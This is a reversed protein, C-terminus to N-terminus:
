KVQFSTTRIKEGNLYISIRYKGSILDKSKNYTLTVKENNNKFDISTSVTYFHEIGASTFFTNGSASADYLIGGDPKEIRMVAQITKHKALNNKRINFTSNIISINKGKYPEKTLTKGNNNKLVIKLKETTLKSGKELIEKNVILQDNSAAKLSDNSFKLNSNIDNLFQTTKTLSDIKNNFLVQKQNFNSIKSEIKKRLSLLESRNLKSREKWSEKEKVLETILNRIEENEEDLDQYKLNLIELKMIEQDLVTSISDKESKLSNIYNFNATLQKSQAHNEYLLYSTGGILITILTLLIAILASKNSASQKNKKSM